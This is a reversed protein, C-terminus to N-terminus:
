RAAKLPPKLTAFFADATMLDAYKQRIDFLNALHQGPDTFGYIFDIIRLAPKHRIGVPNGMGQRKCLYLEGVACRGERLLLQM